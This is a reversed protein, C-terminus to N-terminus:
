VVSKRDRAIKNLFSTFIHRTKPHAFDGPHDAAWQNLISCYRLQRNVRLIAIKENNATDFRELISQLLVKPPAIKRYFCLFILVYNTEAKTLKEQLLRDVLEDWSYGVVKAPKGDEDADETFSGERELIPVDDGDQLSADDSMDLFSDRAPFV